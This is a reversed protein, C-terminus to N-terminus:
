CCIKNCWTNKVLVENSVDNLDENISSELHKVGNLILPSEEKTRHDKFHYTDMLSEIIRIADMDSLKNENEEDYTCLAGEISNGYSELEM